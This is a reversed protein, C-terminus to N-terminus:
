SYSSVAVSSRVNSIDKRKDLSARIHNNSLFGIWTGRHEPNFTNKINVPIGRKWVPGLALPHFVQAGLLGLEAMEEYFLFPINRAKPVINPDATLVGDTDTWNEYIEANSYAALYGGTIDSGGRPFTRIRGKGDQGYYGPVILRESGKLRQSILRNSEEESFKGDNHFKMIEAAEVFESGLYRALIKGSLWEGRSAAWAVTLDANEKRILLGNKVEELEDDICIRLDEAIRLFRSEIVAFTNKFPLDVFSLMGCVILLDTIKLLRDISGAPSDQDKGPASVVVVGRRYDENIIDAVRIFGEANALSSGGFKCVISREINSM